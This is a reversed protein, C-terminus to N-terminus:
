SSFTVSCVLDVLRQRDSGNRGDVDVTATTQVLFAADGRDHVVYTNATRLTREAAEFTGAQLTWGSNRRGRPWRDEVESRWNPLAPGDVFAHDLLEAPDVDSYTFRTIIVVVNDRFEAGDQAPDVWVELCGLTSGDMETWGSGALESRVVGPVTNKDLFRTATVAMAGLREYISQPATVLDGRETWM